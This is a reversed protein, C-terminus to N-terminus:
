GTNVSKEILDWLCISFYFLEDVYCRSRFPPAFIHGVLMQSSGPEFGMRTTIRFSIESQKGQKRWVIGPYCTLDEEREM